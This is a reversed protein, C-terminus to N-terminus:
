TYLARFAKKSTICIVNPYSKLLERIKPLAERHYKKTWQLLARVSALSEWRGDKPRLLKRLFFRRLIRRRCLGQPMDLLYIIDARAFSQGVWAYYVGEIIWDPQAVLESLLRDRVEDPQKVGYKGATRDWRVDDLDYHPLSYKEALREALYSKGSGSPGIIHIRM